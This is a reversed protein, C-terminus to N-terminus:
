GGEEGEGGKAGGMKKVNGYLNLMGQRATDCFILM